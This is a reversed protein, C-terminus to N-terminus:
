YLVHWKGYDGCYYTYGNVDITDGGEYFVWDEAAGVARGPIACLDDIRPERPKAEAPGVALAALTLALAAGTFLNRLGLRAPHTLRATSAAFHASRPSM